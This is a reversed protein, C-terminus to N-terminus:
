SETKRHAIEPIDDLAASFSKISVSSDGDWHYTHSPEDLTLNRFSDQIARIKDGVPRVFTRLADQAGFGPNMQEHYKWMRYAAPGSDGLLKMLRQFDSEQAKDPCTM